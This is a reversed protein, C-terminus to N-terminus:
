KFRILDATAREPYLIIADCSKKKRTIHNLVWERVQDYTPSIFKDLCGPVFQGIAAKVSEIHEYETVPRCDTFVYIGQIKEAEATARNPEYARQSFALAAIVAAPLIIRRMYFPKQQM